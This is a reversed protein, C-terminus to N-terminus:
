NRMEADRRDHDGFDFEAREEIWHREPQRDEKKRGYVESAFGFWERIAAQFERQRQEPSAGETLHEKITQSLLGAAEKHKEDEYVHGTVLDYSGAFAKM